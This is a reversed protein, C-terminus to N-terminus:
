PWPPDRPLAGAAELTATLKDLKLGSALPRKATQKALRQGDLLTAGGPFLTSVLQFAFM